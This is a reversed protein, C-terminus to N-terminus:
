DCDLMMVRGEHPVMNVGLGKAMKPCHCKPPVDTEALWLDLKGGEIAGVCM